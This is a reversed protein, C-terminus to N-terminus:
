QEIIEIKLEGGEKDVEEIFCQYGEAEIKSLIEDKTENDMSSADFKVAKLKPKVALMIEVALKALEATNIQERRLPLGKYTIGDETISIGAVGKNQFMEERETQIQKVKADVDIATREVLSLEEELRVKEEYRAKEKTLYAINELQKSPDPTKDITKLLEIESIVVLEMTEKLEKNRIREAELKRQLEELQAEMDLISNNSAAILDNGKQIRMQMTTLSLKMENIKDAQQQLEAASPVEVDEVGEYGKLQETKEKLVRNVSTRNDYAEKYKADIETTDLKLFDKLFAIMEKENKLLLFKEMDFVSAGLLEELFKAPSAYNAGDPSRVILKGKPNLETYIREVIVDRKEDGIIIQVTAKNEGEMIAKVPADVAGLTAFVAQIFSSKGQGNKGTIYVSAGEVDAEVSKLNKYNHIKIQKVKM